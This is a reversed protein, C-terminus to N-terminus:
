HASFVRLAENYAGDMEYLERDITPKLDVWSVPDKSKLDRVGSRAEATKNKLNEVAGLLERKPEGPLQQEVRKDLKNINAEMESVRADAHSVFDSQRRQEETHACAGFSLLASAVAVRVMLPRHM